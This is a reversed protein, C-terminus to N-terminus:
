FARRASAGERRTAGGTGAPRRRPRWPGARGPRADQRLEGGRGAREEWGAGLGQRRRGAGRGGGGRRALDERDVHGPRRLADKLQLEKQAPAVRRAHELAVGREQEGVLAHGLGGGDGHQLDPRALSSAPQRVELGAARTRGLRPRVTTTRDRLLERRAHRVRLPDHPLIRVEDPAQADVTLAGAQM